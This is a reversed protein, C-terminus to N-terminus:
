EGSVQLQLALVQEWSLLELEPVVQRLQSDQSWVGSAQAGQRLQSDPSWEVSAERVDLRELM